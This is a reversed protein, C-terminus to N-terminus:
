WRFQAQTNNKYLSLNFIVSIPGKHKLVSKLKKFEKNQFMFLDKLIGLIILCLVNCNVGISKKDCGM